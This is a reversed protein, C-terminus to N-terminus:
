FGRVYAAVVEAMQRSRQNREADTCVEPFLDHMGDAFWHFTVSAPLDLGEFMEPTGYPDQEGQMVLLPLRAELLPKLRVIERRKPPSLPYGLSVIGCVRPDLSPARGVWAAVRGGLSKGGIVVPGDSGALTAAIAARFEVVLESIPSEPQKPNRTLRETMFAFEFRATTVGLSALNQALPSLFPTDMGAGSGHALLFTGQSRGDPRTWLIDTV